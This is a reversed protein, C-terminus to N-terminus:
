ADVTVDLHDLISQVSRRHTAASESWADLDFSGGLRRQVKRALQLIDLSDLGLDEVVSDEPRVERDGIGPKVEKLLDVLAAFQGNTANQM